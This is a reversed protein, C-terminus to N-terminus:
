SGATITSHRRGPMGTLAVSAWLAVGFAASAMSAVNLAPELASFSTWFRVPGESTAFMERISATGALDIFIM